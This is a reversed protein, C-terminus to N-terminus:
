TRKAETGQPVVGVAPAIGTPVYADAYETLPRSRAVVSVM